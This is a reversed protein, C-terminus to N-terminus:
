QLRKDAPKQQQGKAAQKNQQHTHATVANFVNAPYSFLVPLDPALVARRKDNACVVQRKDVGSQDDPSEARVEPIEKIVLRKGPIHRGTIEELFIRYIVGREIKRFANKDMAVAGIFM